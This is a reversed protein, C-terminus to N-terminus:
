MHAESLNMFIFFEYIASIQLSFSSESDILGM